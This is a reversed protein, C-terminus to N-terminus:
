VFKDPNRMMSNLMRGIEESDSVWSEYKEKPIYNTAFAFDFWVQTETNEMDADSIKSSFYKPFQRKRYAEGICSCVSRSSRRIQSTLGFKEERPFQKSTEFINMALTFAKSYVKLNRFSGM